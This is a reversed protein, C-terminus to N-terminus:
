VLAELRDGLLDVDLHARVLDRDAHLRVCRSTRRGVLESDGTAALLLATSTTRTPSPAAAARPRFACFVTGPRPGDSDCSACSAPWISPRTRSACTVASARARVKDSTVEYAMPVSSAVTLSWSPPSSLNRM